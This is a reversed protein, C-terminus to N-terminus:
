SQCTRKCSTVVIDSAKAWLQSHNIHALEGRSAFRDREVGSQRSGLWVARRIVVTLLSYVGARKDFASLRTPRFPPNRHLSRVIHAHNPLLSPSSLSIRSPGRVLLIWDYASSYSDSQVVLTSFPKGSGNTSGFRSFSPWEKGKGKCVEARSGQM